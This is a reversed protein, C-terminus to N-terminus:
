GNFYGKLLLDSYINEYRQCMVNKTFLAEVRMKGKRGLEFSINGDTIVRLIASTLESVNGYTTLLGSIGNEILESPGGVNSAIVPKQLYMAEALIIGFGDWSSPLVVADMVSLIERLDTRTGLFMIKSEVNLKKSMDILADRMNGDGVILLLARPQTKVVKSFAQILNRHGKEPYLHAIIGVVKADGPINLNRRQAQGDVYVQFYETDIGNYAVFIKSAPLGVRTSLLDKVSYSDVIFAHIYKNVLWFLYTQYKPYEIRHLTSIIVPVNVTKGCVAGFVSTLALHTHLIQPRKKCLLDRLKNFLFLLHKPDKKSGVGSSLIDIEYGRDVLDNAYEGGKELCCLSSEFLDPNLGEVLYKTLKEAGGVGMSGILHM